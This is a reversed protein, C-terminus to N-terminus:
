KPNTQFNPNYEDIFCSVQRWNVNFFDNKHKEKWDLKFIDNKKSYKSEDILNNTFWPHGLISSDLSDFAKVREVPDKNLLMTIQNKLEVSIKIVEPFSVELNKIFYIMSEEDIKVIQKIDQHHFPTIGVILEYLMVGLSWYDVAKTATKKNTEFFEPALYDLYGSLINKSSKIMDFKFSSYLNIFCDGYEDVLINEPKLDQIIKGCKHFEIITKIIPKIICYTHEESFRDFRKLHFFLDGGKKYDTILFVFAKSDYLGEITLQGPIKCLAAKSAKMKNLIGTSLDQYRSQNTLMWKKFYKIIVYVNTKPNQAQVTKTRSSQSLVTQPHYSKFTFKTAQESNINKYASNNKSDSSTQKTHSNQYSLYSIKNPEFDIIPCIKVGDNVMLKSFNETFVEIIIKIPQNVTELSDIANTSFVELPIIKRNPIKVRKQYDKKKIRFNRLSAEKTQLIRIPTSDGIYVSNAILVFQIFEERQRKSMILLIDYEEPIHIQIEWNDRNNESDNTCTTTKILANIKKIDVVRRQKKQKYTYLKHSTLIFFRRDYSLRDNLKICDVTYISKEQKGIKGAEVQFNTQNLIVSDIKISPYQDEFLGLQQQGPNVEM